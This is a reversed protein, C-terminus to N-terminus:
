PSKLQYFRNGTPPNVIFTRTTGDDTIGTTVKSWNLSSVSTTNQQLKWGPSPSPWAVVVTNTTTRFISLLPAGPMQLAYLSWFGGELSYPGNTMSGGADPQGITGSVEYVGGTSTGGGGGDITSSDISYQGWARFCLASLLFCFCVLWLRWTKSQPLGRASEAPRVLDTSPSPPLPSGCCELVIGANWGGDEMKLGEMKM